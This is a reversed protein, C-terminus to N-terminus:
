KDVNGSGHLVYKNTVTIQQYLCTPDAGTWCPNANEDVGSSDKFGKPVEAWWAQATESEFSDTSIGMAHCKEVGRWSRGGFPDSHEVVVITLSYGSYTQGENVPMKLDCAIAESDELTRLRAFRFQWWAYGLGQPDGCVCNSCDYGEDAELTQCTELPSFSLAEDCTLGTGPNILCDGSAGGDGLGADIQAAWNTFAQSNDCDSAGCNEPCKMAFTENFVYSPRTNDCCSVSWAGYLDEINETVHLTGSRWGAPDALYGQTDPNVGWDRYNAAITCSSAGPIGSFGTYQGAESPGPDTTDWGDPLGSGPRMEGWITYRLEKGNPLAESLTLDTQAGSEGLLSAAGALAAVLSWRTMSAFVSVCLCACM